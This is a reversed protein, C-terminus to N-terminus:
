EEIVADSGGFRKSRRHRLRDCLCFMALVLGQDVEVKLIAKQVAANAVAERIQSALRLLRQWDLRQANATSGPKTRTGGGSRGGMESPGRTTGVHDPLSLVTSRQGEWGHVFEVGVWRRLQAASPQSTKTVHSLPTSFLDAMKVSSQPNLM